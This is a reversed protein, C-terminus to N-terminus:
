KRRKRGDGSGLQRRAAKSSTRGRRRGPTEPDGRLRLAETTAESQLHKWASLRDPDIAGSAVAAQLACGDEGGHRCDRYRCTGMLADIEPFSTTVGGPDVLGVERVGPNDVLFAGGPLAHLSRATTTHRGKEDGRRVGGTEQAEAEFLANLLTSKGVGSSGLLTATQGPALRARIGAVGTGYLGSVAIVEAGTERLCALATAADRDPDAKTLVVLAPVAAEACLALWREVRRLNLEEGMATCVLALDLNAAVPQVGGLPKRRRLVGTRDLRRRVLPPDQGTDVLVWDGVVTPDEPDFVLGLQGMDSVGLLRVRDRSVFAVRTLELPDEPDALAARTDADLQDAFFESLGDPLAPPM